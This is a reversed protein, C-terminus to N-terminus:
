FITTYLNKVTLFHLVSVTNADSVLLFSLQHRFYQINILRQKYSHKNYRIWNLTRQQLHTASFQRYFKQKYM